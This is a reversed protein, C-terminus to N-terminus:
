PLARAELAACGDIVVATPVPTAPKVCKQNTADYNYDSTCFLGTVNMGARCGNNAWLSTGTIGWDTGYTCPTGSSYIAYISASDIRMANTVPCVYYAYGWSSCSSTATTVGTYECQLTVPNLTGAACTYSISATTTRNCTDTELPDVDQKCEFNLYHTIQVDEFPQCSGSTNSVVESCVKVVTDTAVASTGATCGISTVNFQMGAGNVVAQPNSQIATSAAFLPDNKSFVYGSKDSMNVTKVADCPIQQSQNANGVMGMCNTNNASGPTVLDGLGGSYLGTADVGQAATPVTGTYSSPLVQTATTNDITPAPVSTGMAAGQNFANAQTVSAALVHGYASLLFVACVMRQIM